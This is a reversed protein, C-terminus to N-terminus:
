FTCDIRREVDFTDDPIWGTQGDVDILLWREDRVFEVVAHDLVSYTGAPIRMIEQSFRSTEEYLTAFPNAIVVRCEGVDGGTTTNPPVTTTTTDTEPSRGTTTESPRPATTPGTVTTTTTSDPGTVESWWWPATGGVLLAVLIPAGILTLFSPSKSRSENPM